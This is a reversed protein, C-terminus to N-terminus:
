YIMLLSFPFPARSCVKVALSYTLDSIKWNVAYELNASATSQASPSIPPSTPPVNGSLNTAELAPPSTPNGPVQVYCTALDDQIDVGVEDLRQEGISIWASVGGLSPM